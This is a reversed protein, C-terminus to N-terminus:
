AQGYRMIEHMQGDPDTVYICAANKASGHSQGPGSLTGVTDFNDGYLIGGTKLRCLVDDFESATMSFALHISTEVPRRIFQIVLRPESWGYKAV